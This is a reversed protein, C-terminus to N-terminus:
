DVIIMPVKVSEVYEEIPDPNRNGEPLASMLKHVAIYIQRKPWGWLLLACCAVIGTLTYLGFQLKAARLPM